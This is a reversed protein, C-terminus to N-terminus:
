RVRDRRASSDDARLAASTKLQRFLPVLDAIETPTERSGVVESALVHIRRRSSRAARRLLVFAEETSLSLREALVGKAQEIVVRSVLAVRLQENERELTALRKLEAAGLEFNPERDENM